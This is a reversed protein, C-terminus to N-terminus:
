NLASWTAPSGTATCVYVKDDDDNYVLEHKTGATAAMGTDDVYRLMLRGTCTITDTSANGLTTNGNVQFDNTVTVKGTDRLISLVTDVYTGADAYRYLYFHSGANSGSEATNSAVLAWRASAGTLFQLRREQEADGRLQMYATTADGTRDAIIPGAATVSALETTGDEIDNVAVTIADVHAKRWLIEVRAGAAYSSSLTGSLTLTDSSRSAVTIAEGDEPETTYLTAYFGGSSPFEAGEGSNLTLTGAGAAAGSALTGAANDEVGKFTTTAM